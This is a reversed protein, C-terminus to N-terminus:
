GCFAGAARGTESRTMTGWRARPSVLPGAPVDDALMPAHEDVRPVTGDGLLLPPLHQQAEVEALQDGGAARAALHRHDDGGVEQVVAVRRM